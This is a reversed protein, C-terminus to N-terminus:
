LVIGTIHQAVSRYAEETHNKWTGHAFFRAYLYYLFQDIAEVDVKNTILRKISDSLGDLSSVHEVVGPVNYFNDGLTLVPRHFILSEVGVTSNITIVAQSNRILQDTPYNKLFIVNPFLAPMHDYDVKEADAPHLKAVLQYDPAVKNIAEYCVNVFKEMDNGVLPSYMVLQSDKKVQFPVFVYKDPLSDVRDPINTNIKKSSIKARTLGQIEAILHSFVSAKIKKAPPSYQPKRGNRFDELMKRFENYVEPDPTIDRYEHDVVGTISAAQNVGQSDIQMTNPFYGNEGYITKLGKKRAIYVAVSTTLGSGNWVFIADINEEEIFRLMVTYVKRIRKILDDRNKYRYILIPNLIGDIEDQQLDTEKWFWMSPEVKKGLKKLKSRVKIRTAFFTSEIDGPLRNAVETFFQVNNPGLDIFALKM